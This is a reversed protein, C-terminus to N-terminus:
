SPGGAAHPGAGIRRQLAEWGGLPAGDPCALVADAEDDGIPDAGSFQRELVHLDAESPDDGIATRRDIRERLVARDAPLDLLVFPVGHSDAFARARERQPRALFTADLVVPLGGELAPVALDFLRDYTAANMAASYLSADPRSARHSFADLGAVRRREIDARLRIAGLSEVLASALTSKGSGSFGHTAILAPHPPQAGQLAVALYGAQADADGRMAAVRARVLARYVCYWRWTRLGDYDGSREHCANTFRHALAPLRHAALDMAMFAVESTTDVWRLAPNFEIGDFAITQGDVEAVNELHLDGHCERVHGEAARQAFVPELVPYTAAEWRTLHEVAHAAEDDGAADRLARLTDQMTSRVSEPSGFGSDVRAGPSETHLRAIREALADVHRPGLAGRAALRDWQGNRDFARMAVAWDIVRGEGGLRPAAASGTVPVVDLYLAPALRRNLRLEEECFHRRRALSTFDLFGPAIAKKLKWARDGAILVWSIHTEILEVGREGGPSERLAAWLAQIMRAQADPVRAGRGGPARRRM